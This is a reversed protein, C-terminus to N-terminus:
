RGSSIYIPDSVPQRRRFSDTGGFIGFVAGCGAEPAAAEVSNNFEMEEEEQRELDVVSVGKSSIEAKLRHHVPVSDDEVEAEHNRSGTVPLSVTMQVSTILSSRVQAGFNLTAGVSIVNKAVSPSSLTVSTETGGRSDGQNCDARAAAKATINIALLLHAFCNSINKPLITSRHNCHQAVQSEAAVKGPRLYGVFPRNVLQAWESVKTNTVEMCMILTWFNGLKTCHIISTQSKTTLFYPKRWPQSPLTAGIKSLSARTGASFVSTFDQNEWLFRDVESALSDYASQTSGWSDSHVRAGEEYAFPFYNKNLDAPTVVYVSPDSVHGANILSPCAISQADGRSFTHVAM